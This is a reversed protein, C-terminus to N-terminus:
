KNAKSCHHEEPKERGRRRMRIRRMLSKKRLTDMSACAGLENSNENGVGSIGDGELHRERVPVTDCWIWGAETDRGEALAESPFESSSIFGISRQRNL